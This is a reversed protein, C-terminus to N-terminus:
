GGGITRRAKRREPRGHGKGTGDTARHVKGLAEVAPDARGAGTAAGPDVVQGEEHTVALLENAPPQIEGAGARSPLAPGNNVQQPGNAINAQRVFAVARPNKIEALAEVTTRCQGQAKLALRLYTDVTEPYKGLNLLARRTLHSFLLDLTHAQSVLMAEMRSLDGAVARTTSHQVAAVMENIPVAGLPALDRQVQAALIESSLSARAVLEETREEPAGHLTIADAPRALAKGKL